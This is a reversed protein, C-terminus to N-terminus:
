DFDFLEDAHEEFTKDKVTNKPAILEGEFVQLKSTDGGEPLKNYVTYWPKNPDSKESQNPQSLSTSEGELSSHPIQTSVPLPLSTRAVPKPTPTKLVTVQEVVIRVTEGNQEQIRDRLWNKVADTNLTNVFMGIATQLAVVGSEKQLLQLDPVLMLQKPRGPLQLISQLSSELQPELSQKTETKSTPTHLQNVILPAKQNPLIPALSETPTRDLETKKEIKVRVDETSFFNYVLSVMQFNTTLPLQLDVTSTLALILQILPKKQLISQELYYNLAQDLFRYPEINLSDLKKIYDVLVTGSSANHLSEELEELVETSVLGLVQQVHKITLRDFGYGSLTELTNISDRQAGDARKAIMELAEPDVTINENSAIIKLQKILDESSHAALPLKTLRSLVTPLIKEPNTTALLFILYHPPEELVKLLANMAAKSLMHVEDIIFVKYEGAIPPVGASERLVRIDDIGTNSAADLEVIDVTAQPYQETKNLANAFIRAMTTKGVGRPGSLLYAHKPINKEVTKQMIEKALEQGIIQDFSIPRYTNYWAM